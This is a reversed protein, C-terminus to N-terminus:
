KSAPLTVSEADIDHFNVVVVTTSPTLATEIDDRRNSSPANRTEDQSARLNNIAASAILWTSCRLFKFGADSTHPSETCWINVPGSYKVEPGAIGGTKGAIDAATLEQDDSATGDLLRYAIGELSWNCRGSLFRDQVVTSIQMDGVSRMELPLAVFYPASAGWGTSYQCEPKKAYHFVYFRLKLTRPVTVHLETFRTPNPNEKPYDRDNLRVNAAFGAGALLVSFGAAIYATPRLYLGQRKTLITRNM